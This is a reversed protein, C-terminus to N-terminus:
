ALLGFRYLASLCFLFPSTRTRMVLGRQLKKMYNCHMPHAPKFQKLNDEGM